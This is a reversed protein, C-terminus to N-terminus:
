PRIWQNKFFAFLNLVILVFACSFLITILPTFPALSFRITCFGGVASLIIFFVGDEEFSTFKLVLMGSLASIILATQVIQPMGLGTITLIITAVASLTLSIIFNKPGCLIMTEILISSIFITIPLAFPLIRLLVLNAVVVSVVIGILAIILKPVIADLVAKGAVKGANGSFLAALGATIGIGVANEKIGKFVASIITKKM